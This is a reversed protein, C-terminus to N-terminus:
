AARLSAQIYRATEELGQHSGIEYFRQHVEYGIMEGRQALDHMLDALDSVTDTPIREIAARRFLSAGFDIYEMDSRTHRKDYCVLNGGQFVVNSRDWQNANRLVTMLGLVPRRLFADAVARYDFDLYSDAYLVWCTDGLLPLARRLAGGTGLLKDGDFSYHVEMGHRSGDGVHTAVQDGLYGLCLVVRKIGNRRLLHLQHDIFPRGAVEVMCKPVRHTIPWLRTALGGALLAVPAASNCPQASSTEPPV